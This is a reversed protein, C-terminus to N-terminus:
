IIAPTPKDFRHVRDSWTALLLAEAHVGWPPPSRRRRSTLLARKFNWWDEKVQEDMNLDAPLPDIDFDAVDDALLKDHQEFSTKEGTM